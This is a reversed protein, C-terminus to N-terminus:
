IPALGMRNRSIRWKVGACSIRQLWLYPPLFLRASLPSMLQYGEVDIGEEHQRFNSSATPRRCRLALLRLLVDIDYAVALEAFRDDPPLIHQLAEGFEVRFEIGSLRYCGGRNRPLHFQLAFDCPPSSM